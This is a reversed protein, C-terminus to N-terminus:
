AWNPVARAKQVGKYVESIVYILFGILAAGVIEWYNYIPHTLIILMFLGALYALTVGLPYRLWDPMNPVGFLAEM